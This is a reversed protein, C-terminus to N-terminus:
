YCDSVTVGVSGEGLPFSMNLLKSSFSYLFEGLVSGYARINVDDSTSTINWVQDTFLPADDSIKGDEFVEEFFIKKRYKDIKIKLFFNNDDSSNVNDYNVVGFLKSECNIIEANAKLCFSIVIAFILLLVKM